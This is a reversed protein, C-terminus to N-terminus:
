CIPTFAGGSTSQRCINQDKNQVIAAKQEPNSSKSRYNKIPCVQECLRCNVCVNRDVAPYLFGENDEKMVIADKPCIAACATCGCCDQKKNIEIM